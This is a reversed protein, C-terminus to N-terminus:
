SRLSRNIAVGSTALNTKLADITERALERYQDAKSLWITDETQALRICARHLAILKVAEKLLNPYPPDFSRGLVGDIYREAFDVDSEQVPVKDTIDSPTIYRV